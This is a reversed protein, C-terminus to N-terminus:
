WSDGRNVVDWAGGRAQYISIVGYRQEGTDTFRLAQTVPAMGDVRKLAQALTKGDVSGTRTIVDQLFYVADYAYHAGDIPDSGFQARFRDLFAPGAPFERAEVIASSAYLGRLGAAMPPLARTKINDSGVITLQAKAGEPLQQILAMVQFDALTTVLTDAQAAQLAGILPGFDTIADNLSQQLVVDKQRRRLDQLVGVALNKGYPTGDDVLAHRQAHELGAAFSGLARAQMRDNAVLRFTTPLGLETYDPQTSISLQPIFHRAYVPAAAISVGSNLHGIVAVVGADVLQKAAKVGAEENALDDAEVVELVLPQGRVAVKRTNIEQVALRVGNRLDQGQEALPGSLPQAVGIKVTAPWRDCGPLLAAGGLSLAWRLMQRRPRLDNMADPM